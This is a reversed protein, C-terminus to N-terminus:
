PHLELLGIVCGTLEEASQEGQQINRAFTEKFLHKASLDPFPYLTLRTRGYQDVPYQRELEQYWAQTHSTVEEQDIEGTLLQTCLTQLRKNPLLPFQTPDIDRDAKQQEYRPLEIAVSSPSTPLSNEWQDIIKGAVGPDSTIFFNSHATDPAQGLSYVQAWAALRQFLMSDTDKSIEHIGQTLAFPTDSEERLEQLLNDQKQALVALQTYIEKQERDFLEGLKLVLRAQWLLMERSDQEPQHSGKLHSIISHRSEKKGTDSLNMLALASLQGAYDDRRNYLDAILALFRERDDGLPAPSFFTLQNRDIFQQLLSGPEAASSPDNEIAQLYVLSQFVHVLPLFHSADPVTEPFICAKLNSM